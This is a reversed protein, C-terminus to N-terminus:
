AAPMPHATRPTGEEATHFSPPVTVEYEFRRKCQILLKGERSLRDLVSFVQNWTFGSLRRVLEDMSCPGQRRIEDLIASEINMQPM